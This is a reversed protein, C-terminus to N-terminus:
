GQVTVTSHMWPHILCQFHHVGPTLTSRDVTLTRNPLVGTALILPLGNPALENCEPVPGVRDAPAANTNLAVNVLPICSGGFADVETFTHYEGGRNEITLRGFRDITSDERDFDWDKASENPVLGNEVLQGIFDNFKTRGDGVCGPSGDPNPPVNANFTKADCDDYARVTRHDAAAVSTPVLVLALLMVPLIMSLRRLRRQVM